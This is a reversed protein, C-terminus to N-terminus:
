LYHQIQQLAQSAKQHLVIDAQSDLPTLELNIIILHKVLSPLYAVPMVELSSGIVIMTDAREVATMAQDFAIPMSDGFLVVNTRLIRGREPCRPPIEGRQIRQDFTMADESYGCDECHNKSADGHVQLVSQSGAKQHLDDINQTIIEQLYGKQQWDVLIKHSANQEKGLVDQIITYGERYYREPNQYLISVSLAEQPLTTQYYGGTGRFDPIGSETSIGAGTLAVLYKADKILQAAKQYHDM